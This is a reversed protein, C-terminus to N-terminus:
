VGKNTRVGSEVDVALTMLLIEEAGYVARAGCVECKYKRADPEVPAHEAGCERCYGNLEGREVSNMVEEINWRAMNVM